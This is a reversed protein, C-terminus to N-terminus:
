ARGVPPAKKIARFDIHLSDQDERLVSVVEFALEVQEQKYLWRIACPTM